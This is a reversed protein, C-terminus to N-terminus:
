KNFKLYYKADDEIYFSYNSIIVIKRPKKGNLEIICKANKFIIYDDTELRFPNTFEEIINIQLIKAFISKLNLEM